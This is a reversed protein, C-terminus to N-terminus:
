RHKKAHKKAKKAKKAKKVPKKAKKARRKAMNTNKIKKGLLRGRLLVRSPENNIYVLCIYLNIIRIM